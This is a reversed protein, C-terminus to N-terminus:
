KSPPFGFIRLNGEDRSMRDREDGAYALLMRKPHWSLTNTASLTTFKHVSEGTEV